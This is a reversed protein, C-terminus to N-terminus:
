FIIWIMNLISFTTRKSSFCVEKCSFTIKIREKSFAITISEPSFPIQQTIQIGKKNPISVKIREKPIWFTQRTIQFIKEKTIKIKIKFWFSIEQIPPIKRRKERQM